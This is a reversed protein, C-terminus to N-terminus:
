YVYKVFYHADTKKMYEEITSPKAYSVLTPDMLTWSVGDFVIINDIWGEEKTYVSIWAHYQDDCYGIVLKTPIQQSRLMAAMLSAFDFCIGKGEALTQDVVPLYGTAVTEAKDYDYSITTTVYTYVAEVVELDKDCGAAVEEGKGVTKSTADFDVYANPYLFMSYDDKMTVACNKEYIMAYQDDYVNEYVGVSYEGTGESFPYVVMEGDVPLLYNYVVGSPQTLLLRVKKAEGSYSVKLFGEDKASLDLSVGAEEYIESGNTDTSLVVAKRPSVTEPGNAPDSPKTTPTTIDGGVTNGNTTGGCATLAMALLGALICKYVNGHKRM